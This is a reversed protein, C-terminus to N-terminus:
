IIGKWALIWLTGSIIVLLASVTVGATAKRTEPRKYDPLLRSRSLARRVPKYLLLAFGTNLANKLLNFPLFVPILMAAVAERPYGVYIPVILYNWLLMVGTSLLAGAILGAAAGALTRKWRYIVAATCAFFCTSLVNMLWGWLWTESATFMELTSVALSIAAPAAPGLLFGAIVIVADKPEYSLPPVPVVPIRIIYVLAYAIAAFMGLITLKQTRTKM